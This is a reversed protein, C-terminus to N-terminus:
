TFISIFAEVIDPDFQTGSCKKIEIIAEEHTRASRYPRDQTIADYTDIISVIRSILPIEKGKLGEPYGTGDFREHHTLIGKAISRLDLSSMAIQYGISPHKKMIEWEEDSLSSPKNLINSPIGVKGIDHLLALLYLDDMATQKLGLKEGVKLAINGMRDMHDQTEQSNALMTAKISSLSDRNNNARALLKRRHMYDEASKLITQMEVQDNLKTDFGMSVSLQYDKLDTQYVFSMAENQISIMLDYTKSSDSNPLILSFEDGGSRAVVIGDKEYKMLLKAFQQIVKDGFVRGFSDNIFKTGDLDAVMVGIPYKKEDEYLKLMHDFYLRNKLGTLQDHYMLHEIELDKQRRKDLDIIIGEIAVLEKQVNFVPKGKEYVWKHKGEKTVIMYEKEFDCNTDFAENWSEWVDTKYEEKIIQTFPFSQNQEMETKTYGTLEYVGKSVFSVTRDKNPLSQYIVGPLHNLVISKLDESAKLKVELEKQRTIDQFSMVYGIPQDGYMRKTVSFTVDIWRGENTIFKTTKNYFPVSELLADFRNKRIGKLHSFLLDFINKGILNSESQYELITLASQNLSVVKHDQSGVIIGEAISNMILTHEKNLNQYAEQYSEIPEILVYFVKAQNSFAKIHYTQNFSENFYRFDIKGNSFVTSVKHILSDIQELENQKITKISKGITEEKSTKMTEYFAENADLYIYDIPQENQYVMECKAYAIKCDNVIREFIFDDVTIKGRLDTKVESKKMILYLLAKSL